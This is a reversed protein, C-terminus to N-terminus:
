SIRTTTNSNLEPFFLVPPPSPFSSDQYIDLSFTCGGCGFDNRVVSISCVKLIEVETDEVVQNSETDYYKEASVSGTKSRPSTM